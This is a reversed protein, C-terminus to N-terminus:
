DCRKPAKRWVDARFDITNERIHMFSARVDQDEFKRTLSCFDEPAV